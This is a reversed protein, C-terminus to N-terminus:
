KKWSGPSKKQQFVKSPINTLLTNDTNSSKSINKMCETDNQFLRGSLFKKGCVFNNISYVGFVANVLVGIVVGVINFLIIVLQGM